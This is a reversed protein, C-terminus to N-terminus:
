DPRQVESQHFYKIGTLSVPMFTMACENPRLITSKFASLMLIFVLWDCRLVFEQASAVQASLM